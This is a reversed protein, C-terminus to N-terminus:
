FFNVWCITNNVARYCPRPCSPFLNERLSHRGILTTAIMQMGPLWVIRSSDSCWLTLSLLCLVQRLSLNRWELTSAIVPTMYHARLLRLWLVFDNCGQSMIDSHFGSVGLPVLVSLGVQIVWIVFFGYRVLKSHSYVAQIRLFFLFSSTGTAVITSCAIGLAMAHCNPLPSASHSSLTLAWSSVSSIFKSKTIAATM